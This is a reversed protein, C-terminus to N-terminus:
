ESIKTNPREDEVDPTESGGPKGGEVPKKDRTLILYISFIFAAFLAAVVFDGVVFSSVLM